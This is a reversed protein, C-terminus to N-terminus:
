IRQEDWSINEKIVRAPVGSLLVNPGASQTVIAGTGVVTDRNLTVGKLIKAGEGIWCHDGILVDAGYNIRHGEMDTISHSDGTRVQIYSSLMCRGGIKLTRGETCALHSHHGIYTHPGIEITCDNDEIYLEAGSVYAGEHLIVRNNIGNIKIVSQYIVSGPESVILNGIGKMQIHSAVRIGKKDFKNGHGKVFSRNELWYRYRFALTRLIRSNKLKERNM